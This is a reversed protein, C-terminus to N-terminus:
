ACANPGDERSGLLIADLKKYCTEKFYKKKFFGAGQTRVRDYMAGDQLLEMIASAFGQKDDAVICGNEEKKLIGRLGWSTTVVPLGYSLAEVVKVKLGTGGKLPCIVLRSSAYFGDLSEAQEVIDVDKKKRIFKGVKGVVAMKVGPALLPHVEELFWEMGNRNFPNDSGVFLIDIKKEVKDHDGYEYFVPLDVFSTAPCFQSLMIAEEESISLAYDFGSIGKIESEFMRGLKFEKKGSLQFNYMTAFDHLDIIKVTGNQALNALSAWYVYNVIIIDYQKSAVMERFKKRVPSIALDPLDGTMQAKKLKLSDLKGPRWDVVAIENCLDRRNRDKEEWKNSYGDISILDTSFGREKLYALVQFVRRHTGASMEYFNMPYFVLVNKKIGM